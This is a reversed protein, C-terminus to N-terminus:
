LNLPLVARDKLRVYGHHTIRLHPIAATGLTNLTLIPKDWRVGLEALARETRQMQNWATKIDELSVIGCLKAPYEALIKSGVAVVAGGGIKELRSVVTRISKEDCGAVFM